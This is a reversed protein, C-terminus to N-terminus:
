LYIVRQAHGALNAERTVLVITNNHRHLSKLLGMIERDTRSALNGTPEDALLISPSNVMACGIAVRQRQGGSPENPRHDARNALEM